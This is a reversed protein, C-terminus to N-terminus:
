NLIGKENSQDDESIREWTLKGNKSDITGLWDYNLPINLRAALSQVNSTTTYVKVNVYNWLEGLYSQAGYPENLTLHSVERLYTKTLTLQENSPLDDPYVIYVTLTDGTQVAITSQIDHQHRMDHKVKTLIAQNAYPVKLTQEEAKKIDDSSHKPIDQIFQVFIIICAVGLALSLSQHFWHYFWSKPAPPKHLDRAKQLVNQRHDDKFTISKLRGHNLIEPLQKLPDEM